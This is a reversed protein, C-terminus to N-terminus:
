QGDPELISRESNQPLGYVQRPALLDPFRDLLARRAAFCLHCEDVYGPEIPLDYRRALEAPGGALLPGVISHRQPDYDRVIQGLPMRWLNGMLLGQCPHLNGFCDVHVRQPSALDEHPCRTLSAAPRTPLDPALKEAARGRFMVGGDDLEGAAQGGTAQKVAPQGTHMVKVEIGLRSAAAQAREAHGGAADGYHLGDDSLGIATVGREALPRLWLEADADSTAWYGNTVIGAKLGRERALELGALLLPFYLMPEGGEFFVSTITGLEVAQDLVRRLQDLTFTGRARPGSYLFCHDCEFNCQYTLLFHLGTLM